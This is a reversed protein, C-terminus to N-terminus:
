RFTGKLYFRVIQVDNLLVATQTNHDLKQLGKHKISSDKNERQARYSMFIIPRGILRQNISLHIGVWAGRNGIEGCWWEFINLLRAGVGGCLLWLRLCMITASILFKCVAGGGVGGLERMEGIEEWLQSSGCLKWLDGMECCGSWLQSAPSCVMSQLTSRCTLKLLRSTSGQRSIPVPACKPDSCLLSNNFLNVFHIVTNILYVHLNEIIIMNFEKGLCCDSLLHHIIYLPM